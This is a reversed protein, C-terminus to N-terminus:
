HDPNVSNKQIQRSSPFRQQHRIRKLASRFAERTFKKSRGLSQLNRNARSLWARTVQSDTQSGFAEPSILGLLKKDNASFSTSARPAVDQSTPGPPAVPREVASSPSPEHEGLRGKWTGSTDGGSELGKGEWNLLRSRLRATVKQEFLQRTSPHRLSRVLLWPSAPCDGSQQLDPLQLCHVVAGEWGGSADDFDAPDTTFWPTYLVEFQRKPSKKRPDPLISGVVHKIVQHSQALFDAGLGRRICEAALADLLEEAYDGFIPFLHGPPWESPYLGLRQNFYRVLSQHLKYLAQANGARVGPASAVQNVIQPM